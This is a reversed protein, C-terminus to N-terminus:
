AEERGNIEERLQKKAYNRFRQIRQRKKECRQVQTLENLKLGFKKRLRVIGRDHNRLNKTGRETHPM